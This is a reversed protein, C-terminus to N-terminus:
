AYQTKHNLSYFAPEIVYRLVRGSELPTELALWQNSPSYWLDIHFKATKLRYRKAIVQKAPLALSEKGLDSVEVALYEGTEANLLKRQKLIDPNWYAFSMVCGALESEGQPGKVVLATEEKNGAVNSTKGNRRTQAEIKSLCGSQWRETAEHQYRYTSFGFVKVDFDAQSRLVETDEELSLRFSHTGIPKDDLLVRFRWEKPPFAHTVTAFAFMCLGAALRLPLNRFHTM